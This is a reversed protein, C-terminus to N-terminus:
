RSYHSRFASAFNGEVWRMAAAQNSCAQKQIRKLKRRFSRIARVQSRNYDNLATVTPSPNM